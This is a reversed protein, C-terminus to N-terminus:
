KRLTNHPTKGQGRTERAQGKLSDKEFNRVSVPNGPLRFAPVQGGKRHKPALCQHRQRLPM